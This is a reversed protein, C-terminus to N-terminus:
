LVSIGTAVEELSHTPKNPNLLYAAIMTDFLVGKINIGDQKLIIMDYKINHGIKATKEDEFVPAFISLLDSKNLQAPAGPYLHFVPIYCANGKEISLSLGVLSAAMPDRGTTKLIM